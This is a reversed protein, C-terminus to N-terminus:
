DGLADRVRALRAKAEWERAEAATAREEAESARRELEQARSEAAWLRQERERLAETMEAELAENRGLADALNEEVSKAVAKEAARCAVEARVCGEAAQARGQAEDREGELAAVRLRLSAIASKAQRLMASVAATERASLVVESTALCRDPFREIDATPGVRHISLPMSM